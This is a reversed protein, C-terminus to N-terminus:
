TIPRVSGTSRTTACPAKHINELGFTVAFLLKCTELIAAILELLVHVELALTPSGDAPQPLPPFDDGPM